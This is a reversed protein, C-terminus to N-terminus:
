PLQNLVAAAQTGEASNPDKEVVQAFYGKAAEIDGKNLNVLGLKFLPLVWDPDAASAKEYWEAAADVQGQAFQVEGLNYLDEREAVGSEVLSEAASLDGMGVRIRAVANEVQSALTPDNAAATEYAQISEEFDRMQQLTAGISLNLQNFTPVLQQVARYETLADEWQENEYAADAGDLQAALAEVDLGELADRGLALELPHPIRRLAVNVPSNRGNRITVIGPEPEFGEAEVTLNWQGSPMGLVIYDGGDNTAEERPDAAGVRGSPVHGDFRVTAGALPEGTEADSVRGGQIGGQALVSPVVLGTALMVMLLSFINKRM